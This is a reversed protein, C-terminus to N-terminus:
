CPSPGLPASGLRAPNPQSPEQLKLLRVGMILETAEMIATKTDSACIIHEYYSRQEYYTKIHGHCILEYQM